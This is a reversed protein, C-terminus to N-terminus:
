PELTHLQTSRTLPSSSIQHTPLRVKTGSRRSPLRPSCGSPTHGSSELQEYVTLPIWPYEVCPPEGTSSLLLFHGTAWLYHPDMGMNASTNIAQHTSPAPLHTSITSLTSISYTYLSLFAGRATCTMALRQTMTASVSQWLFPASRKPGLRWMVAGYQQLRWRTRGGSLM